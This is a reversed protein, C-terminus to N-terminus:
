GMKKALDAAKLNTYRKLSQLDKHGSVAAVEMVNWNAEFLRSIAEHRLDHFNFHELKARKRAREFANKIGEATTRLVQGSEQQPLNKLTKI